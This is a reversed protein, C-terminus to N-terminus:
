GRKAADRGFAGRGGKRDELGGLAGRLELELWLVRSNAALLRAKLASFSIKLKGYDERIVELAREVNEVSTRADRLSFRAENLMDGCIAMPGPDAEPEDLPRRPDATLLRGAGMAEITKLIADGGKRRARGM